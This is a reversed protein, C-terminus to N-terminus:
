YLGPPFYMSAILLFSSNYRYISHITFEYYIMIHYSWLVSIVGSRKYKSSVKFATPLDVLGSRSQVNKPYQETIRRCLLYNM